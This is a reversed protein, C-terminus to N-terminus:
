IALAQTQQVHKHYYCLTCLSHSLQFRFTSGLWQLSWGAYALSARRQWNVCHALKCLIAEQKHTTASAMTPALNSNGAENVVSVTQTLPDKTSQHGQHRLTAKHQLVWLDPNSGLEENKKLGRQESGDQFSRHKTSFASKWYASTESSTCSSRLAKM